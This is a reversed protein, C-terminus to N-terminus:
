DVVIGANLVWVKSNIAGIISVNGDNEVDLISPNKLSTYIDTLHVSDCLIQILKQISDYEICQNQGSNLTGEVTNSLLGTIGGPGFLIIPIM